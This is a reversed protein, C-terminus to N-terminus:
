SPSKPRKIDPISELFCDKFNTMDKLYPLTNKLSLKWNSIPRNSTNKWNNGVWSFYKEKIKVDLSADYLDLSQAYEIFMELSPIEYLEFHNKLSKDDNKEKKEIVSPINHIVLSHNCKEIINIDSISKLEDKNGIVSEAIEINYDVMLRYFCPCGNKTEYQILGLSRLKEKCSKITKRTLGLINSMAIDSIIITYGNEDNALKLLYLYIVITSSGFRIKQNFNWFRQILELYYM